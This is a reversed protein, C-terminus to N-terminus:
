LAQKSDLSTSSNHLIREIPAFDTAGDIVGDFFLPQFGLLPNAARAQDRHDVLFQFGTPKNDCVFRFTHSLARAPVCGYVSAARSHPALRPALFASGGRTRTRFYGADLM